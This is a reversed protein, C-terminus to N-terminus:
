EFDTDTRPKFMLQQYSSLHAFLDHNICCFIKTCFLSAFKHNTWWCFLHGIVISAVMLQWYQTM